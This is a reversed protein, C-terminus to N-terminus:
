LLGHLCVGPLVIRADVAAELKGLHLRFTPPLSSFAALLGQGRTVTACLRRVSAGGGSRRVMKQRLHMEELNFRLVSFVLEGNKSSWLWRRTQNTHNHTRSGRTGAHPSPTIRLKSFNGDPGRERHTFPPPQPEWQSPCILREDRRM